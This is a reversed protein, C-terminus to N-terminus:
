EIVVGIYESSDLLILVGERGDELRYGRSRAITRREISALVGRHMMCTGRDLLVADGRVAFATTAPSPRMDPPAANESRVRWGLCGLAAETSRDEPAPLAPGGSPADTDAGQARVHIVNQTVPTAEQLLAAKPVPSSEASANAENQDTATGASSCAAIAFAAAIILMKM